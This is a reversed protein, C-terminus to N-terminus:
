TRVPYQERGTLFVAAISYQKAPSWSPGLIGIDVVTAQLDISHNCKEGYTAVTVGSNGLKPFSLIVVPVSLTWTYNNM